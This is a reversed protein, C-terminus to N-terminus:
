IFVGSTDKLIHDKFQDLAILVEEKKVQRTTGNQDNVLTNSLDVTLEIPTSQTANGVGDTIQFETLGVATHYTRTAM